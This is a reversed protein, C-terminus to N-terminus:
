TGHKDCTATTDAGVTAAYFPPIHYGRARNQPLEITARACGTWCIVDCIVVHTVYSGLQFYM